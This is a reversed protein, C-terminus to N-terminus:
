LNKLFNLTNEHGYLKSTNSHAHFINMQRLVVTYIHEYMCNHPTNILEKKSDFDQM